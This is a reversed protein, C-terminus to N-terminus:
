IKFEHHSNLLEGVFYNYTGDPGYHKTGKSVDYVSGLISLYLEENQVGDFLALSKVTFLRVAGNESERQSSTHIQEFETVFHKRLNPWLLATIVCCLIIFFHQRLFHVLFSIM